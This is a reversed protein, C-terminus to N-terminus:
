GCATAFPRLMATAWDLGTVSRDVKRVLYGKSGVSPLCFVLRLAEEVTLGKPLRLPKLKKPIRELTFPKQPMEGLIKDLPLDVPKSSIKNTM